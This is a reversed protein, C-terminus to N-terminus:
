YLGILRTIFTMDVADLATDLELVASKILTEQDTTFYYPAVKLDTAALFDRDQNISNKISLFTRLHTGVLQNLVTANEPATGVTAPPPPTEPQTM